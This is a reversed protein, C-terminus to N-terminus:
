MIICRNVLSKKESTPEGTEDPFVVNEESDSHVLLVEQTNSKNSKVSKSSKTSKNSKVSRVSLPSSTLVENINNNNAIGRIKKLPTGIMEDQSSADSENQRRKVASNIALSSLFRSPTRAPSIRSIMKQKAAIKKEFDALLEQLRAPPEVLESSLWQARSWDPGIFVETVKENVTRIDFITTEGPVPASASVPMNLDTKILARYRFPHLLVPPWTDDRKSPEWIRPLEIISPINRTMWFLRGIRKTSCNFSFVMFTLSLSIYHQYHQVKAYGSILCAEEAETWTKRSRRGTVSSISSMSSDSDFAM